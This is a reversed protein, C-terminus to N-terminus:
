KHVHDSEHECEECEADAISYALPHDIGDLIAVTRSCESCEVEIDVGDEGHTFSVWTPASPHCRSHLFMAQKM